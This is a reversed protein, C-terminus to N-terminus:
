GGGLWAAAQYTVLAGVYALVTMYTFTFAPWRWSNTERRIVALTGACQACLAFFIMISLAVPVTFLPRGDDEWTAARLRAHWQDAATASGEEAPEGLNFIVRLAAVVVERAPLSALVACGIRWDWGLPRVAPEILRGAHALLSHRQYEGEIEAHIRELEAALAARRPGSSDIQDLQARLRGEQQRLPAVTPANHPFYLSAWVVVSVALILTGAFRVFSWGREIMRYLVTRLSPWKYSPLEMIFLPTQSRLITRKLALAAAVAMVIGLAYLGVLTLGQLSVLGGLWTWPPIFAAIMLTYVPLRASCTLLPATLITTLRDREDEIVRAAMIGPVACAFSSLMPIFAKGSLGVRSMLRDMLYAARAMYGCDELIGLFFFLILIQPLFTLVGGVGALVGDVLLSRLMGEAMHSTLWAGLAGFIREILGMAPGAGLFVAQFVVLMALAFVLAGWLRHTLLRDIRDTATAGHEGSQTMAGDLVRRVWDYRATTEVGPVPCGALCLRSRAATLEPAWDGDREPFLRRCLHGGSDLLLRRVLPGPALCNLGAPCGALLPELRAIEDEFPQPFAPRLRAAPEDRQPAATSPASCAACGLLSCQRCANAPQPPQQGAAQALAAKLQDVGAGQNAQIPVVAVGLRGALQAVDLRVGHQRAVDIMNLAVVTPLGLELVQGVLYLNRQLNAADVICLVVDVPPGDGQRGLLVEAAVAEDRSRPCLSYLGPLDVVEYRRGQYHMAGTKKEVTVGPYNGVHQRIGVLATFLTSKGTNPNGILAVTLPRLDAPAVPVVNLPQGPNNM